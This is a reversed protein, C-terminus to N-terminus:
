GVDTEHIARAFLTLSGREAPRQTSSSNTKPRSGGSSTGAPPPKASPIEVPGVGCARKRRLAVIAYRVRLGAYRDRARDLADFTEWVDAHITSRLVATSLGDLYASTLHRPQKGSGVGISETRVTFHRLRRWDPSRGRALSGEVCAALQRHARSRENLSAGERAAM